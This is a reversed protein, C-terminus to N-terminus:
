YYYYYHYYEYYYYYYTTTDTTTTATNISTTTTAVNAITITIRSITDMIKAIATFTLVDTIRVRVSRTRAPWCVVRRVLWCVFLGVRPTQPSTSPIAVTITIITTLGNSNAWGVGGDHYIPLPQVSNIPHSLCVAALVLVHKVTPFIATPSTAAISTRQLFKKRNTDVCIHWCRNLNM